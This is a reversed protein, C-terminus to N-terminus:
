KYGEEWDWTSTFVLHDCVHLSCPWMHKEQVLNLVHVSFPSTM